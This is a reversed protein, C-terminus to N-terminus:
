VLSIWNETGAPRIAILENIKVGPGRLRRLVDARSKGKNNLAGPSSLLYAVRIRTRGSCSLKYDHLEGRVSFRAEYGVMALTRLHINANKHAAKTLSSHHKLRQIEIALMQDITQAVENM